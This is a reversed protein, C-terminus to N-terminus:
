IFLSIWCLLMMEILHKWNSYLLPVYAVDLGRNSFKFFAHWMMFMWYTLANFANCMAVMLCPLLFILRCATYSPIEYM